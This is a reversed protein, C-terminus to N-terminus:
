CNQLPEPRPIVGKAGGDLRTQQNCTNNYDNNNNKIYDNNNNYFYFFIINNSVLLVCHVTCQSNTLLYIFYYEILLRQCDHCKWGPYFPFAQQQQYSHFVLVEDPQARLGPLAPPFGPEGFAFVQACQKWM